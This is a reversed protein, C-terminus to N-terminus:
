SGDAYRVIKCELRKQELFRSLFEQSQMTVITRNIQDKVEEYSANLQGAYQTYIGKMQEETVTINKLVTANLFKYSLLQKKYANFLTDWEINQAEISKKLDDRTLGATSLSNDIGAEVEEDTISVGIKAAEQRIIEFNIAQELLDAGTFNGRLSAPVTLAIENLDENTIKVGNVEALVNRPTSKVASYFVFALIVAAAVVMITIIIDRKRTEAEKAKRKSKM